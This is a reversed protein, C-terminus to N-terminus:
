NLSNKVCLNNDQLIRVYKKNYVDEIENTNAVPLVGVEIDKLNFYM